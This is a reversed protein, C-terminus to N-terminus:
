PLAACLRCPSTLAPHSCRPQTRPDRPSARSPLAPACPACPPPRMLAACPRCMLPACSPPSSACPRRPAARPGRMADCRTALAGARHLTDRPAALARACRLPPYLAAHPTALATCSTAPRRSPPAVADRPM